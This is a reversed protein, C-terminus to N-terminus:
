NRRPECGFLEAADSANGSFKNPKNGTQMRRGSSGDASSPEISVCDFKEGTGTVSLRLRLPSRRGNQSFVTHTIRVTITHATPIVLSPFKKTKGRAFPFSPLFGNHATRARPARTRGVRVVLIGGSPRAGGKIQRVSASRKNRYSSTWSSRCTRPDM